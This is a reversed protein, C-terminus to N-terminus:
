APGRPRSPGAPTGRPSAASAKPRTAWDTRTVAYLVYDDRGEGSPMYGRLTGEHVFGLKELVRRMATNGAATSAQIREAGEGAFLREVLQRIAEAGYGRGRDEDAYLEIGVEFVGPPFANAPCRADIEGVLRGDVDIALRLFGDYLRGSREVHRQVARRVGPTVPSTPSARRKRAEWVVDVEDPRFPRLTLLMPSSAIKLRVVPISGAVRLKPLQREVL